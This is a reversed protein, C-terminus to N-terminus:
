MCLYYFLLFYCLIVFIAVLFERFPCDLLEIKTHPWTYVDLGSVSLEFLWIWVELGDCSADCAEHAHSM